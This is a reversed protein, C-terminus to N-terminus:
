AALPDESFHMSLFGSPRPKQRREEAAPDFSRVVERNAKLSKKPIRGVPLGLVWSKLVPHIPLKSVDDPHVILYNAPSRSGVWGRVEFLRIRLRRAESWVLANGEADGSM